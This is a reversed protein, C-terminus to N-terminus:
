PTVTISLQVDSRNNQVSCACVLKITPVFAAGIDVLPDVALPLQDDCGVPLAVSMARFFQFEGARLRIGDPRDNKHLSGPVRLRASAVGQKLVDRRLKALMFHDSGAQQMPDDAFHLPAIIDNIPATPRM